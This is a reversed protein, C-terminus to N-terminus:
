VIKELASRTSFPPETVTPKTGLADIGAEMTNFAGDVKTVVAGYEIMMAELAALKARLDAIEAASSIAAEQLPSVVTVNELGDGSATDVESNNVRDNANGEYDQGEVSTAGATDNTDAVNVEEDGALDTGFTEEGPTTDVDTSEVNNDPITDIWAFESDIWAFAEDLDKYNSWNYAM